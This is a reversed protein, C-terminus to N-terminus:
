PGPPCTGRTLCALQWATNHWFRQAQSSCVAVGPTYRWKGSLMGSPTQALLSQLRVSLAGQRCGQVQLLALQAEEVEGLRCLHIGLADDQM